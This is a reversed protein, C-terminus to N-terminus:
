PGPQKSSCADPVGQLQTIRRGPAIHSDFYWHAFLSPCIPTLSQDASRVVLRIASARDGTLAVGNQDAAAERQRLYGNYFPAALLYVCGLLAGVLALRSLPDDDRRFPTRDAIFIALATGLVIFAAEILTQHLADNAAIWALSRAFVFKLEPETAGAFLTDSVVIQQSGGWGIVYAFGERTRHMTAQEVITVRPNEVKASAYAFFSRLSPSIAAAEYRRYAPAVVYPDVYAILLTFGVIGAITYLYWQHTRDALWLVIAAILGAVIMTVIASELWGLLWFRTLADSLGMIRTMRYQFFQPILASLNDVLALAAGFAFRLGFASGIRGRLADRLRASSGSRWFWALVAIQLLITVFWLPFEIAQLHAAGAARAPDILRFPSAHLLASQSLADVERDIADPRFIM